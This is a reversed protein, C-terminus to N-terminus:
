VNEEVTVYLPGKLLEGKSVKPNSESYLAISYKGKEGELYGTFKPQNIGEKENHFLTIRGITKSKVM